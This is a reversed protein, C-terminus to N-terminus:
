SGAKNRKAKIWNAITAPLAHIGKPLFLMVLILTVGLIIPEWSADYGPIYRLFVPISGMLIVGWVPGFVTGVGGIIAYVAVLVSHVFTFDGQSITHQMQAFFAGAIGAFFCAIAFATVKYKMINVGVAEALSDAEGISAMTLGFRSNSLRYMVFITIIVLVAAFYYFSMTSGFSIGFLPAPSPIGSLGDTGGFIEKWNVWIQRVVEGFAFTGIAFYAGKIRLTPYGILIAIFASVLGALLLCLWSNWNLLMVLLASTFAGIGMFAAQAMSFQGTVVLLRFGSALIILLFMEIIVRQYYPSSVFLPLTFLVVMIAALFLNKWSLMKNKM